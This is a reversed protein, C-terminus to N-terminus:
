IACSQTVTPDIFMERQEKETMAVEVMKGCSRFMKKVDHVGEGGVGGWTVDDLLGEGTEGKRRLEEVYRDDYRAISAWAKGKGGKHGVV